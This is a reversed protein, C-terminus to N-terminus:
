KRDIEPTWNSDIGHVKRLQIRQLLDIYFSDLVRNWKGRLHDIAQECYTWNQRAYNVMLNEHLDRWQEMQKIESLPVNDILCYSRVSQTKIRFTDLSLVLYRDRLPQVNEEGLIINM